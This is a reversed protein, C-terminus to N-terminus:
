VSNNKLFIEDIVSHYCMGAFLALLIVSIETSPNGNQVGIMMQSTSAVFIAVFWLSFLLNSSDAM